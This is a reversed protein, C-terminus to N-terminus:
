AFEHSAGVLVIEKQEVHFPLRATACEAAGRTLPTIRIPELGAVRGFLDPTFGTLVMPPRVAALM